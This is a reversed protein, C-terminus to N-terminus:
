YLPEGRYFDHILDRYRAPRYRAPNDTSVCSPLCKIVSDLAPGFFFAISYRHVGSSNLVRHPTSLVRDNSWRRLVNGLNILLTGPIAPPAVWEGSPLRVSLGPVDTRALATIFSNDTHPRQGYAHDETTDQPPYHLFRLRANPEGAFFPAFFDATMGLAVAFWLLMRGCLASVASFYAMMDARVGLLNTPWQNRGRSPTGVLAETHNSNRDQSVFFSENRNPRTAHHVASAAQVSAGIPLYGLHSQDLSLAMKQELPLAFFHRAATFAREILEAAIGRNLTSFGPKTM